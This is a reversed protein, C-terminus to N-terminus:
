ALDYATTPLDVVTAGCDVTLIAGTVASAQDSALFAIVAAVEGPDAPRRLPVQATALAYAAERSALGRLRMLEDMEEDAMPTRVWGPCVVNVRVGRPGFDRAMSRALGILGHKASVYGVSEPSAALGAISSVVVVSGRGAILDPLCARAAVLCTSLNARLSAAWADDRVDAATGQGHGGANAVLIDVTRSRAHVAAIVRAMEDASAADAALTMAQEGLGSAVAALPAARRGVLVVAAGDAALRRAAAAGIGTGGGTIVATRGALPGGPHPQDPEASM